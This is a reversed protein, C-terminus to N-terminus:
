RYQIEPSEPEGKSSHLFAAVREVTEIRPNATQGYKIKLLTPLPVGSGTAIRSVESEKASQLTKLIEAFTMMGLFIGSATDLTLPCPYWM